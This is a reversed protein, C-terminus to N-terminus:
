IPLAGSIVAKEYPKGIEVIQTRSLREFEPYALAIAEDHTGANFVIQQQHSLPLDVYVDLGYLHGLPPM